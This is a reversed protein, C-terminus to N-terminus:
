KIMSWHANHLKWGKPTQEAIATFYGDISITNGPNVTINEHFGAAISALTTSLPEIRINNWQLGIKSVSKVLTNRIFNTASDNNSFQLKGDSAMFFGPTQEFYTLWAVPGDSTVDNAISGVMLRVSDQVAQLKDPQDVAM